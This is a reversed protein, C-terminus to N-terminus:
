TYQARYLDRFSSPYAPTSRKITTTTNPRRKTMKTGRGLKGRRVRAMKKQMDTVHSKRGGRRKTVVPRKRRMRRRGKLGGRKLQPRKLAVVGRRKRRPVKRSKRTKAMAKSYATLPNKKQLILRTQKVGLLKM